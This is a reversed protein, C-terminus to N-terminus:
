EQRISARVHRLASLMTSGTALGDDVLIASRGRLDLEPNGGRYREERQKIVTQERAIIDEIDEASIGLQLIMRDDLITSGGAISGIALEPQWPVGLKDVVVIDLQIRLRDAVEFGLPVGGRTLALVVPADRLSDVRRSSLEKALLRGAEIRGAFPLHFM